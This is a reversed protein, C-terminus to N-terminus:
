DTLLGELVSELAEADEVGDEAIEFRVGRWVFSVKGLQLYKALEPYKKVLWIYADSFIKIKVHQPVAKGLQVYGKDTKIFKAGNITKTERGLFVEALSLPSAFSGSKNVRVGKAMALAESVKVAKSGVSKRFDFSVNRSSAVPLLKEKVLFSTYPTVIEYEEALRKLDDVLEKKEGEFRIQDLLWACATEAWMKAAEQNEESSYHLKFKWVVDKDLVKGRIMVEYTGPKQYIGAVVFPDKAFIVRLRPPYVHILGFDASNVKIAPRSVSEFVRLLGERVEEEDSKVYLVKGSLTDAIRNLLVSNVDEGIGVIFGTVDANLSEVMRVIRKPDVEGVTPIGDTVFILLKLRGKDKSKALEILGRYLADYINTGGAAFLNDLEQALKKKATKDVKILGDGIPMVGSAFPIIFVRDKRGIQRLLQKISDVAAGLKDGSMSGSVDLVVVVDRPMPDFEFNPMIRLYAHGRGHWYGTSALVLATKISSAYWKFVIDKQPKVKTKEVSIFWGDKLKEKRVDIGDVEVRYAPPLKAEIVLNKFERVYKDLLFPYRVSFVKTVGYDDFKVAQIYTIFIKRKAHPPVPFLQVKLIGDGIYSLLAPDKLRRVIKLYEDLATKQDEIHANKRKGDVEIAFKSVVSERPLPFYYVAEVERNSTNEFEEEIEVRAIAGKVELKVHHYNMKFVRWGLEPISRVPLIVGDASSTFAVLLIFAVLLNIMFRYM